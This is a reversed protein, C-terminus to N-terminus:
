SIDFVYKKLDQRKKCINKLYAHKFHLPVSAEDAWMEDLDKFDNGILDVKLAYMLICYIFLAGYFITGSAAYMGMVSM